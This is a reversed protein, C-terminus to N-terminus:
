YVDCVGKMAKATQRGLCAPFDPCYPTAHPAADGTAWQYGPRVEPGTRGCRTCTLFTEPFYKESCTPCIGHSVGSQGEGDKEGLSKGCWGCAVQIITAM